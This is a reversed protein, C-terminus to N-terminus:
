SRRSTSPQGGHSRALETRRHFAAVAAQAQGGAEEQRTGTRAMARLDPGCWCATRRVDSLPVKHRGGWGGGGLYGEQRYRIASGGCGGLQRVQLHELDDEDIFDVSKRAMDSRNQDRDLVEM